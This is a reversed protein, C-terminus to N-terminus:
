PLDLNNCDSPVCYQSITQLVLIVYHAIVVDDYDTIANSIAYASQKHSPLKGGLCTLTIFDLLPSLNSLTM